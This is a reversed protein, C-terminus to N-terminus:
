MINFKNRLKRDDDTEISQAKFFSVCQEIELEKRLKALEIFDAFPSIFVSEQIGLFGKRKILSRFINRERRKTEPIDFAILKWKGDWKQKTWDSDNIKSVRIRVLSKPTILFQNENIKKIYGHKELGRFTSSFQRNKM